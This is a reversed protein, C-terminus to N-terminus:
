VLAHETREIVADQVFKNLEVFRANYGSIRVVLNQYQEPHKQAERLMASDVINFQIMELGLNMATEIYNQFKRLGAEGEISSPTLKQNFINAKQKVSDIKSASLIAAMPGNRDYGAHPSIGGDALWDGLKRGNPLAGTQPACLFMWTIVLGSPLYSSGGIDKVKSAEESLMGYTQKAVEDAFDDDNGFKPANIFEQRMEEYGKWNANLAEIVEAMTYRKDEFVLKKLSILSDVADVQGPSNMWCATKAPCDIIDRCADLSRRFLCSTFPRKIMANVAYEGLAKIHGAKRFFWAVQKRYAEFVEEFSAFETPDGTQPGVQRIEGSWPVRDVGNNLALELYKAPFVSIANRRCAGRSYPTYYTTPAASICGVCAWSRAEELTFGYNNMLNSIAVSDNKISPQGLGSRVVECVRRWVKPNVKPHWRFKFDPHSLRLDDMADLILITLENCADSGDAKVGGITDTALYNVGQKNRRFELGFPLGLEDVNLLFNEMIELSKERPLTRDILVDKEYWPWFLQDTRWSTGQAICDIFQYCLFVFWHSQVAEWFSRAPNGPVWSCIESIQMLEQKRQPDKEKQAMEKALQSYRNTWRPVAEAAILMAKVDNIKLVIEVGKPGDACEEKEKYLEALKQHLMEIIKNLGVKLYLDHDPQTRLAHRSTLVEMYRHGASAIKMEEETLLSSIFAHLNRKRWYEQYQRWEDVEEKKVHGSSVYEDIIKADHSEPHFPLAHPDEAYFGVILAQPGIYIPVTDLYHAFAKARRISLPEGETEKWVETYARTRLISLYVPKVFDDGSCYKPVHTKQIEQVRATPM